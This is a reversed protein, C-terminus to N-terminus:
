VLSRIIDDIREWGVIPIAGYRVAKDLSGEDALAGPEPDVMLFLLKGIESCFKLLDLTCASDSYVETVVVAQALGVVLRNSATYADADPEREPPYESIVGGDQAIDIAVPAHEPPDIHDFGSGLVSFSGGGNGARSGLHAAAAIGRRLSSIVQVGAQAFAKGLAVTLQIGANTANSTGVVAVTKRDRGPLKGRVYLLPPPDNLEMLLSPYSDDLQSIVLIDRRNLAAQYDGAEDLHKHSRSIDNAVRTTMGSIAMLSGSDATLIRQISGYRQLLAEFLRPGVGGFRCLALLQVTASYENVNTVVTVESCISSKDVSVPM